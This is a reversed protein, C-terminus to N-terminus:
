RVIGNCLNCHNGCYDSDASRDLNCFRNKGVLFYRCKSWNQKMEEMTLNSSMLSQMDTRRMQKCVEKSMVSARGASANLQRNSNALNSTTIGLRLLTEESISDLMANLDKARSQKARSPLIEVGLAAVHFYNAVALITGHGCFPNIVISTKAVNMLFAIGLVCAELGIAKQWIMAGRDIVDPVQFQSIHYIGSTGKGYCLLHTYGPRYGSPESTPSSDSDVCLKHWLLNCHCKAAIRSCICSKDIWAILYGNEDILKADTQSFIAFQGEQIRNFISELVCEFWIIYKIHRDNLDSISSIEPIDLIDPVGTFVSGPFVESSNKLWMVADLQLM